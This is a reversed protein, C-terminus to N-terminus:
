SREFFYIPLRAEAEVDGVAFAHAVLGPREADPDFTGSVEITQPGGLSLRGEETASLVAASRLPALFWEVESLDDRRAALSLTLLYTGLERDIQEDQLVIELGGPEDVSGTSEQSLILAPRPPAKAVDVFTVPEPMSFTVGNPPIAEIEAEMVMPDLNVFTRTPRGDAGLLEVTYYLSQRARAPFFPDAGPQLSVIEVTSPRNPQFQMRVPGLGPIEGVLRGSVWDARLTGEEGPFVEGLTSGRLVARVPPLDTGDDPLVVWTCIGSRSGGCTITVPPAVSVSM